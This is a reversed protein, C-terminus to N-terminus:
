YSLFKGAKLSLSDSLGYVLFGQELDVADDNGNQGPQYESDVTASLKDDFTYYFNFEVQDLGTSSDSTEDTGDDVEQYFTSMDIFGGLTLKDTLKFDDAMASQAALASVAMSVAVSRSLWQQKFLSM